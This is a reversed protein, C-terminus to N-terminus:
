FVYMEICSLDTIKVTNVIYYFSRAPPQVLSIDRFIVSSGPQTNRIYFMFMGIPFWIEM